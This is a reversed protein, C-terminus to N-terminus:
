WVTTEGTGEELVFIDNTTSLSGGQVDDEGEPEIVEGDDDVLTVDDLRDEWVKYPELLDKGDVIGPGSILTWYIGIMRNYVVRSAWTDIQAQTFGRAILKDCIIRYAALNGAPALEDYCEVLATSDARALVAAVQTKLEDDTIYAM